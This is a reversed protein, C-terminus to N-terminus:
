RPRKTLFRLLACNRFLVITNRKHLAVHQHTYVQNFYNEIADLVQTENKTITEDEM